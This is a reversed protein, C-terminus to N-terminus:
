RVPFAGSITARMAFRFSQLLEKEDRGYLSLVGEPLELVGYFLADGDFQIVPVEHDDMRMISVVTAESILWDCM